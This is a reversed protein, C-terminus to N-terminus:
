RIKNWKLKTRLQENANKKIRNSESKVKEEEKKCSNAKTRWYKQTMRDHTHTNTHTSKRYYETDENERERKSVCVYDNEKYKKKLKLKDEEDFIYLIKKSGRTNALEEAPQLKRHAARKPDFITIWANTSQTGVLTYDCVYACKKRLQQKRQESTKDLFLSLGIKIRYVTNPMNWDPYKVYKAIM